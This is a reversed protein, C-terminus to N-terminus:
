WVFENSDFFRHANIKFRFVFYLYDAHMFEGFLEIKHKTERAYWYCLFVACSDICFSCGFSLSLFRVSFFTIHTHRYANVPFRAIATFCAFSFFFMIIASGDNKIRHGKKEYLMLNDIRLYTTPCFIVLQLFCCGGGCYGCCCFCCWCFCFCYYACLWVRRSLFLSRSNTHQTHM